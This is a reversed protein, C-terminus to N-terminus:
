GVDEALMLANAAASSLHGSRYRRGPRSNRQRPLWIEPEADEPASDDGWLLAASRGCVVGQPCQRALAATRLALDEPQSRLRYCAQWMRVYHERVVRETVLHRLEARSLPGPPLQPTEVPTAPAPGLREPAVVRRRRKDPVTAAGTTRPAPTIDM